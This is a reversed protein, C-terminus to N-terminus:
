GSRPTLVERQAVQGPAAVPEDFAVVPRATALDVQDDAIFVGENKDLHFQTACGAEAVREFGHRWALLGGEAPEGFLVEVVAFWIEVAYAEAHDPHEGSTVAQADAV